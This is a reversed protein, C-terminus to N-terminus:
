DISFPNSSNNLQLDADLIRFDFPSKSLNSLSYRLELSRSQLQTRLAQLGPSTVTSNITSKLSNIDKSIFSFEHTISSILLNTYAIIEDGFQSANDWFKSPDDEEETSRIHIDSFINSFRNTVGMSKISGNLQVNTSSVFTCLSFFLTAPLGATLLGQVRM